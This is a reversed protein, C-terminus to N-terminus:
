IGQFSSSDSCSGPEEDLIQTSNTYGVRIFGLLIYISQIQNVSHFRLFFFVLTDLLRLRTLGNDFRTHPGLNFLSSNIRLNMEM